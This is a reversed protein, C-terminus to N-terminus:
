RSCIEISAFDYIENTPHIVDLTVLTGSAPTANTMYQVWYEDDNETSQDDHLLTQGAGVSRLTAHTWDAGVGFVWSLDRTTTLSVTPAGTSRSAIGTTGVPRALNTGSFVAVVLLGNCTGTNCGALARSASITVNSVASTPMTYWIEADGPQGNARAALTWQLGGGTLSSVSQAATPPGDSAVFVVILQNAQASINTIRMPDTANRDEAFSSRVLAVRLDVNVRLTGLKGQYTATITADGSGVATVVGAPSVTAVGATDSQWAAQGTVVTTGGDSMNATAVLQAIQGVTTLNSTGTVTISVLTPTLDVRVRLTGSNGQYTATVTAEGTSVATVVGGGSVTVVNANDSRWTAQATVIVTTGDSMNATAVLQATQGVTTLSSTGTITVSLVTPGSPTTPTTVSSKGCAGTLLCAVATMIVGRRSM